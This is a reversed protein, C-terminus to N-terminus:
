HRAFPVINRAPQGHGAIAVYSVTNRGLRLAVASGHFSDTVVYRAHKIWRLWEKPGLGYMKKIGKYRTLINFSACFVPLGTDQSIDRAISALNYGGNLDFMFIYDGKCPREGATLKQWFGDGPLFVPDCVVPVDKGLLGAMIQAGREERCSLSDFSKLWGAIRERDAEEVDGVGFSPAYAIRKADGCDFQLYYAASNKIKPHFVQDSGSILIDFHGEGVNIEEACSYTHRTLHLYEGKFDIFRRIRKKISFYFLSNWLKLAANKIVGSSSLTFPNLGRIHDATTLDLIQVEAGTQEELYTQLALAQLVAGYNIANHFTIIGIRNLM